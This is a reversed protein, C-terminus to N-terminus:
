LIRVFLVMMGMLVSGLTAAGPVVSSAGNVNGPDSTVTFQPVATGDWTITATTTAHVQLHDCHGGGNADIRCTDIGADFTITTAERTGSAPVTLTYPDMSQHYGSASAVITRTQTVTTGLGLTEAVTADFGIIQSVGYVAVYTTEADDSGIVSVRANPDGELSLNAVETPQIAYLTATTTKQAHAASIVATLALLLNTFSPIMIPILGPIYTPSLSTSKYQDRDFVTYGLRSKSYLDAGLHRAVIFARTGAEDSWTTTSYVWGYPGTQWNNYPQVSSYPTPFVPPPPPQLSMREMVAWEEPLKSTCDVLRIEECSFSTLLSSGGNCSLVLKNDRTNRSIRNQSKLETYLIKREEPEEVYFLGLHPLRRSQTPIHYTNQMTEVIQSHLTMLQPTKTINASLAGLYTNGENISEFCLHSIIGSQGEPLPPVIADLPPPRHSSDFTLLTIHPAFAPYSRSGSKKRYTSPRFSM